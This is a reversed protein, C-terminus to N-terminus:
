INKKLWNIAMEFGDELTDVSYDWIEEGDKDVVFSYTYKPMRGALVEEGYGNEFQNVIFYKLEYGRQVWKNAEILLNM